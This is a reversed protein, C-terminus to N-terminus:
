NLDQNLDTIVLLANFFLLVFVLTLLGNPSITVKPKVEATESQYFRNMERTPEQKLEQQIKLLFMRRFSDNAYKWADYTIFRVKNNEKEIKDQATKIISSKGTGWSGFLGITFVKDKPTNNIVKVLEDAYVKTKLIDNSENLSIEEDVIFRRRM